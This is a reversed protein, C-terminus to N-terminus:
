GLRYAALHGNRTIVYLTQCSDVVPAAIIASDAVRVRAVFCGDQKRMWHLYGEQDGVVVYDGMLAPGSINRAQLRTQQWLVKGTNADFAWVHGCADSVYVRCHDAAIGSYSSIDHSWLVRGSYLDLGSVKGQYTAAYVRDNLIIPDADIDIMRQIAFSGEPVALTHQWHEAGTHLNLSVLNGNAFGSVVNSSQVRPSSAGRLILTPETQTFQWLPQGNMLSYAALRGDISKVLGIGTGGSPNALIESTTRTRWMIQGNCQQLAVLDGEQSGVLILNDVAATGGTIRVGTNSNWLPRGSQKEFASVIGNNNSAFVAYNTVAPSLKLYDKGVGAGANTHWLPQVRITSTLPVLPSPIPTNDKEFFGNCASLLLSM